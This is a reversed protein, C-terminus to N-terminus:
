SQVQERNERLWHAAAIISRKAPNLVADETRITSKYIHKVDVNDYAARTACLFDKNESYRVLIESAPMETELEKRVAARFSKRTWFIKM